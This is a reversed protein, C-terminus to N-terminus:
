SSIMQSGIREQATLLDCLEEADEGSATMILGRDMEVRSLSRRMRTAYWRGADSRWISWHSGYESRLQSWALDEASIPVAM